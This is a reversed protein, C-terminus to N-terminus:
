LQGKRNEAIKYVQMDERKGIAIIEVTITEEQLHYVIRIQKKNAYLKKYGSLDINNKIGLDEGLQPSTKLKELQKKVIIQVGKDLELFEKLALPHFIIKYEM